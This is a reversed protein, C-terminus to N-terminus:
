KQQPKLLEPYLAGDLGATNGTENFFAVRNVKAYTYSQTITSVGTGAITQSALNGNNSGSSFGLTLNSLDSGSNPCTSQSTATNGLRIGIPQLRNSYCTPEILPNGVATNGVTMQQLAGHSAYLINNRMVAQRM